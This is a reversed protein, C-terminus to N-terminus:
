FKTFESEDIESNAQAKTPRAQALPMPKAVSKFAQPKKVGVTHVRYSSAAGASADLRFFSM